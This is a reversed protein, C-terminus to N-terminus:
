YGLKQIKVMYKNKEIRIFKVEHIRKSNMNVLTLYAKM